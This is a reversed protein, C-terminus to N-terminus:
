WRPVKNIKLWTINLFQDSKLVINLSNNIIIFLSKWSQKDATPNIVQLVSIVVKIIDETEMMAGL